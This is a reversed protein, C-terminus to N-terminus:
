YSFRGRSHVSAKEGSLAAIPGCKCDSYDVGNTGLALAGEARIEQQKKANVLHRRNSIRLRTSAAKGGVLSAFSTVWDRKLQHYGM